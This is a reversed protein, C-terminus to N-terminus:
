SSSIELLLLFLLLRSILARMNPFLPRCIIAILGPATLLRLARINPLLLDISYFLFFLFELNWTSKYQSSSVWIM